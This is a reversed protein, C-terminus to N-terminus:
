RWKAWPDKSSSSSSAHEEDASRGESRRRYSKGGAGGRQQKREAARKARKANLREADEISLKAPEGPTQDDPIIRDRPALEFQEDSANPLSKYQYLYFAEVKERAWETKKM